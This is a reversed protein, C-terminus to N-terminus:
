LSRSQQEVIRDILKATPWYGDATYVVYGEAIMEAVIQGPHECIINHNKPLAKPNLPVWYGTHQAAQVFAAAIWEREAKGMTFSRVRIGTPGPWAEYLEIDHPDTGFAYGDSVEHVQMTKM